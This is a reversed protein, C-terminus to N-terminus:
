AITTRSQSRRHGRVGATRLITPRTSTALRAHPAAHIPSPPDFLQRFALRLCIPAQPAVIVARRHIVIM